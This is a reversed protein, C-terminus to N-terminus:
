EGPAPEYVALLRAEGYLQLNGNVVAAADVEQLAALYKDEFAQADPPGMMKTVAIPGLSLAEGDFTYTCSFRNVGSTGSAKGSEEVLSLTPQQLGVVQSVQVPEENLEVLLWNGDVSPPEEVVPACGSLAAVMLLTVLALISNLYRHIHTHKKM